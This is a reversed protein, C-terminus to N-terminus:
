QKTLSIETGDEDVFTITYLVPTEIYTAVYTVNQTVPALAPSWGGFTYTYEATAAKSPTTPKIIDAVATQYDYRTSAKM